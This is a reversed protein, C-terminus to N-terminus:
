VRASYAVQAKFRFRLRLQSDGVKRLPPGPQSDFLALAFAVGGPSGRSTYSETLCEVM